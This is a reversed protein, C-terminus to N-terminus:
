IFFKIKFGNSQKECELWEVDVSDVKSGSPGRQLLNVLEKLNNEEGEAEVLVSGNNLNKVYGTLNLKTAYREVFWRFGVGQVIGDIRAIIKKLKKEPM